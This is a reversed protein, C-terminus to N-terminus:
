GVGGIKVNRTEGGGVHVRRLAVEAAGSKSAGRAIVFWGGDPLDRFVFRGEADCQTSRVYARYDRAPGSSSRARVEAVSRIAQEDSGYLEVM